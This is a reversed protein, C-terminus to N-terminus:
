SSEKLDVARKFALKVKFTAQAELAVVYVSGKSTLAFGFEVEASSVPLKELEKRVDDALELIPRLKAMVSEKLETVPDKLLSVPEVDSPSRWVEILVSGNDTKVSVLGGM